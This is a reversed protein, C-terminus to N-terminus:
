RGWSSRAAVTVGAVPSTMSVCSQADVTATAIAIGRMGIKMIRMPRRVCACESARRSAM